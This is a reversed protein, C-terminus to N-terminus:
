DFGGGDAGEEAADGAGCWGDCHVHYAARRDFAKGAGNVRQNERGDGAGGTPQTREGAPLHKAKGGCGRGAAASLSVQGSGKGPHSPPRRGNAGNPNEVQLDVAEADFLQGGPYERRRATTAASRQEHAHDRRSSTRKAAVVTLM